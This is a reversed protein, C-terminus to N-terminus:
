RGYKETIGIYAPGYVGDAAQMSHGNELTEGYPINNQIRIVSFKPAKAIIKMGASYANVGATSGAPASSGDGGLSFGFDESDITVRHNERYAGEDVPSGRIIAGLADAAVTRQLETVDEDVADAFVVPSISWGGAM